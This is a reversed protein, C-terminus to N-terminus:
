HTIGWGGGARRVNGSTTESLVKNIDLRNAEPAAEDPIQAPMGSVTVRPVETVVITGDTPKDASM